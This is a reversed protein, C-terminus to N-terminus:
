QQLAGRRVFGQPLEVDVVALHGPGLMGPQGLDDLGVPLPDGLPVDRVTGPPEALPDVAM